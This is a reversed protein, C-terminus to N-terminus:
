PLSGREANQAFMQDLGKRDSGVVKAWILSLVFLLAFAINHSSMALRSVSILYMTTVTVAALLWDVLATRNSVSIHSLDAIPIEQAGVSGRGPAEHKQEGQSGYSEGPDLAAAPAPTPISRQARRALYQSISVSGVILLGIIDTIPSTEILLLAGVILAAREFLSLKRTMFGVQGAALCTVGILSTVCVRLITTVSGVLLLSPGYVFMFPVIFGTLGLRWAEFGLKNPDAGAIGAAAFAALAVPPTITSLCGYYFAFMHAGMEAVGMKVLAPVAVASVTLYVATSTMGMGLVVCTIAVYILAILLNGRSVEVIGGALRWGTGSVLLSGIIVGAVACATSVEMLSMSSELLSGYIKRPTMATEKRLFSVLLLIIISYSAAKIPSAGSVLVYILAALPITLFWGKKLVERVQPLDQSPLPKLGTKLAEFHVAWYVCVYYLIAPLVAAKVVALYPIGLFQAMVFAAAGMVPPMIQGGTSAVAEVAGAFQPRYGVRKMLPITFTGTTVVNAVASGSVTSMVASSLVAAKAPGGVQRGTAALALDTFFNGAGSDLLCQGLIIFLSVYSATVAVPIGFIGQDQIFLIDILLSWAHPPGHLVSFFKDTFIANGIFFVAVLVIPLGVARRGAELLVAIFLTGLFVDFANPEGAKLYWGPMDYLIYGLTFVVIALCLIDIVGSLHRLFGAPRKLPKMLFVIILVLCVHTVRFATAEPQGFFGAYLHYLALAMCFYRAIRDRWLASNYM